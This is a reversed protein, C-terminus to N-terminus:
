SIGRVEERAKVVLRLGDSESAFCPGLELRGSDVKRHWDPYGYGTRKSGRTETGGRRFAMCNFGAFMSWSPISGEDGSQAM